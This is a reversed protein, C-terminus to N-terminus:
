LHDARGAEHVLRALETRSRVGLKAYIRSLQNEVTKPSLHLAAAVERNSAGRAVTSAVDRERATLGDLVGNGRTAASGEGTAALELEARDAWTTAGLRRFTSVARRLQVKAASRRRHRRLHVGACLQSRATEIPSGAAALLEVSREFHRSAVEDEEAVLALSREALGAVLPDPWSQAVEAQTRARATAASVEGSRALVEVLDADVPAVAPHALGVERRVEDAMSLSTIADDITGTALQVQGLAVLAELRAPGTSHTAADRLRQVADAGGRLADLRGEISATTRQQETQPFRDAITSAVALDEAAPELRGQRIRVAARHVRPMLELGDAGLEQASEITWALMEAAGKPDGCDDLMRGVWSTLHLVPPMSSVFPAAEHHLQAAARVADIGDPEGVLTRAYGASARAATTLPGLGDALEVAGHSLHLAADLCGDHLAGVTAQMFLGVAELRRDPGLREAENAMVSWAARPVGRWTSVLGELRRAEAREAASTTSALVDAALDSADDLRGAVQAARAADLLYTAGAGSSLRAARQWIDSAFSPDGDDLVQRALLDLRRALDDHTGAVEHSEYWSSRLPDRLAVTSALAAAIHRREAYPEIRSAAAQHLPHDFTARDGDVALWGAEEAPALDRAGLGLCGLADLLTSSPEAAGIAATCLARRTPPPLERMASRVARTYGLRHVVDPDIGAATLLDSRDVQGAIEIATRANGRSLAAIRRLAAPSPQVGASSTVLHRLEDTGLPPVELWTHVRPDLGLRDPRRASLVVVVHHTPALDALARVETLTPADLEDADDLVFLHPHEESAAVAADLWGATDVAPPRGYSVVWPSGTSALMECCWTRGCGTPGHIVVTAGLGARARELRQGIVPLRDRVGGEM